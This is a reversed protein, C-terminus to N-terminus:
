TCLPLPTTCYKDKGSQSIECLMDEVKMGTAAQTLIEKMKLALSYKVTHKSWLKNKQEDTSSYKTAEM